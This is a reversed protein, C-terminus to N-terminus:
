RRTSPRAGPRHRRAPAPRRLVRAPLPQRPGPALGVLELLEAVRDSHDGPIKQIQLPEAIARRRDTTPDLSAYPDQFVIQMSAACRACTRRPRARRAGPGQVGVGATPEILQLVCRGVTTKGSGSEGVLGLTESEHSRSRCTPCRRCSASSRASARPAASRSTSSSTPSRSCRCRGPRRRRPPSPPSGTAAPAIASRGATTRRAMRGPSRQRRRVPRRRRERSRRPPSSRSRACTSSRSASAPRRPSTRVAAAGPGRRRLGALRVPLTASRAGPRRTSCTRRRAPSRRAAAGPRARPLSTCCVARTRTRRTPRLADDVTAREVARGAYMVQVRDAVRAVVGLDHTILVIATHLERHIRQLVELIQAQVTVDLATTPEDAILVTPDNAIAMAIMVRQRM